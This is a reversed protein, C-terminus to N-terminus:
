PAGAESAEESGPRGPQQFRPEQEPEPPSIVGRAAQLFADVWWFIDQRRVQERLRRMRRRREEREMCFARRLAEAVGEVDYPNVILAGGRLQAAAGAFESLILVGNEEINAACYEKAVLNMGDKLPTILAIESARYYALLEDRELHRYLYHVPIWGPSSLEGNIEGVLREIEAKLNQYEPVEARSPVVVQLFSVRERLEPYAALATRLAELRQPIGKTYDLRDVGLVIRREPVKEHFLWARESVEPTGARGAFEEYDISIPFAGVQVARRELAALVANGRGRIQVDPLLQALCAQFNRRDRGTQFGILDFCLLAELVQRRWPLKLFIDAPPFPIHLFFGTRREVGLARLREALCMLHYDHVWVYDDPTTHEQVARAYKLNVELYRRWYEPRFNCRGQLDHFLPWVIENAFGHYFLDLDEQDLGVPLLRFGAASGAQALLGGPDAEEVAGAWGIWLGARDRLVPAMATVLGGSGPRLRWGAAERELVVPLRNSVIVLRRQREGNM